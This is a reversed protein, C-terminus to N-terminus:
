SFKTKKKVGRQKGGDGEEEEADGPEEGDSEQTGDRPESDAERDDGLHGILPLLAKIQGNTHWQAMVINDEHVRVMAAAPLFFSFGILQSSTSCSSTLDLCSLDPGRARAGMQSCGTNWTELSLGNTVVSGDHHLRTRRSMSFGFFVHGCPM